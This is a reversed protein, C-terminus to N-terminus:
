PLLLGSQDEELESITLEVIHDSSTEVSLNNLTKDVVPLSNIACM